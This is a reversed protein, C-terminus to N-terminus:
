ARIRTFVDGFYAYPEIPIAFAICAWLVPVSKVAAEFNARAEM